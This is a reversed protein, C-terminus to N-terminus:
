DLGEPEVPLWSLVTLAAVARGRSKYKPNMRELANLPAEPRGIVTSCSGIEATCHNCGSEVPPWDQQLHSLCLSHYGIQLDLFCLSTASHCLLHLSPVVVQVSAENPPLVVEFWPIQM